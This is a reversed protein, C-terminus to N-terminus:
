DQLAAYFSKGHLAEYQSKGSQISRHLQAVVQLVMASNTLRAYDRLSHDGDTQLLRGLSTCTFQGRDSEAVVGMHALLRLLRELTSACSGTRAALEGSRRPGEKLLDPIGLEAAVAIAQAQVAEFIMALLEHM